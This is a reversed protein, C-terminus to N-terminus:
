NGNSKEQAAKVWSLALPNAQVADDAENIKMNVWAMKQDSTLFAVAGESRWFHCTALVRGAAVAADRDKIATALDSELAAIRAIWDQQNHYDYAVGIRQCKCPDEGPSPPYCCPGHKAHYRWHHGCVMCHTGDIPTTAM